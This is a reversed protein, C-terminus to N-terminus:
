EVAAVKALLESLQGREVRTLRALMADEAAVHGVVVEDALGFGAHTLSIRQSRRDRDDRRREILGQKELRDLRATMASNSLMMEAAMESPSLARDPGQRRLTLLVDLAAFDLGYRELNVKLGDSLRRGARWIAGCVAMCATDLDPRERAWQRLISDLEAGQM